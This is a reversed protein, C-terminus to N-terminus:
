RRLLGAGLLQTMTAVLERVQTDNARLRDARWHLALVGNMAAWLTTSTTAPDLHPNITRDAIGVEARFGSDSTGFPVTLYQFERFAWRM